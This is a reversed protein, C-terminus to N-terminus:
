YYVIVNLNKESEEALCLTTVVFEATRKSVGRELKIAKKANGATFIVEEKGEDKFTLKSISTVSDEINLFRIQSEGNKRMNITLDGNNGKIKQSNYKKPSNPFGKSDKATRIEILGPGFIFGTVYGGGFSAPDKFFRQFALTAAKASASRAINTEISKATVSEMEWDCDSFTRDEHELFKVWEEYTNKVSDEHLAIYEFFAAFFFGTLFKSGKTSLIKSKGVAHAPDLDSCARHFRIFATAVEDDSKPTKKIPVNMCYNEYILKRLDLSSYKFSGVGFSSNNPNFQISDFFENTKSDVKQMKNISIVIDMANNQLPQNYPTMDFAYKM